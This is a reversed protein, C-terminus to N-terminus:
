NVNKDKKDFDKIFIVSIGTNRIEHYIIDYTENNFLKLKKTGSETLDYIVTIDGRFNDTGAYTTSQDANIDMGGGVEISLREDMMRKTVRFDMATRTQASGSTFDSYSQLGVNIDVGKVLQGAFRNLQSALINNVSNSLATTAILSQDFDSGRSAEPIFGGLVLLGFVQKNLESEFEPQTLRQLKNALVPFNAKEANPLDLAFSVIPAEVTGKIIIGVEYPLARRYLERESEGIEHGILGISSSNIRHIAKIDLTGNNPNGTWTVTSGRVIEFEKKVLDYFSLKYFGKTLNYSGELETNGSRDINLNLKAAGAVEIFDGSKADIIVRFIANDELTIKSELNFSPLTAMLSDYFSKTDSIVLSDSVENPDIFEVIGESSLLELDQKPLVLSLDTTDRVVVNAKLRIDKETGQLSLDSGVVLIGQLQFDETAPNNVLLYNDAVVRLDYKFSQYDDTTLKGDLVLPNQWQDYITFDRLVIGGNELTITEDELRFSSRPKVTTLDINQFRLSGKYVPENITGSIDTQGAVSGSIKELRDRFFYQFMTLDEVEINLAGTIGSDNKRYSGILSVQNSISNLSFEIPIETAETNARANIAIPPTNGVILSDIGLNLSLTKSKPSYDISGDMKGWKIASSDETLMHNLRRLDGNFINFALRDQDGDLVLRLDGKSAILNEIELSDKSITINNRQDLLLQQNFSVLSDLHIRFGNELPNIVSTLAIFAISDNSLLFNSFISDNNHTLDFNLNGLNFDSYVINELDLHADVTNNSALMQINLSDLNFGFGKFSSSEADVSFLNKSEDFRILTSFGTFSEFREDILRLPTIDLVQLEIDFARNGSISDLESTRYDDYLQTLVEPADVINFNGTLAGKIHDSFLKMSSHGEAVELDLMLSDLTYVLTDREFSMDGASLLVDFSPPYLMMTAVLIGSMSLSDEQLFDGIGFDVFEATATILTSDSVSITTELGLGYDPDNITTLLDIDGNQYMADVNIQDIRNGLVAISEFSGDIELASNEATSGILQLSFNTNGLWPLSLMPGVALETASLELDLDLGAATVGVTGSSNLQGENFGIVSELTFHQQRGSSSLWFEMDPPLVLEGAFQSALTRLGTGMKVDTIIDSWYFSDVKDLHGLDGKLSIRDTNTAILVSDVSLKSDGYAASFAIDTSPWSAALRSIEESLFYNMATPELKGILSFGLSASPLQNPLQEWSDFTAEINAKLNTQWTSAVLESIQLAQPQIVVGTSLHDLKFGPLTGSLLNLQFSLQEPSIILASLQLDLSDLVIHDPDFSSAKLKNKLHFELKNNKLDISGISINFGSNLDLPPLSESKDNNPQQSYVLSFDTHELIIESLEITNPNIGLYFNRADFNGLNTHLRTSDEFNNYNFIIDQLVIRKLGIEFPNPQSEAPKQESRFADIIFDINLGNKDKTLDLQMGKLRLANVMFEGTLAELLDPLVSISEVVLLDKGNRDQISMGKVSIGHWFGLSVRDINVKTDIRASLYRAAKQTIFKQVPPTHFLTILVLLV